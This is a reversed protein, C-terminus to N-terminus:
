VMWVKYINSSVTCFNGLQASVISKLKLNKPINFEQNLKDVVKKNGFGLTLHPSFNKESAKNLYNLVWSQSQENATNQWFADETCKTEAYSHSISVIDEHLKQILKHPSLELTLVCIEENFSIHTSFKTTSWIPNERLKFLTAELLPSVKSHFDTLQSQLCYMQLLTIHPLRDKNFQFGHPWSNYAFQNISFVEKLSEESCLLCIDLAIITSM